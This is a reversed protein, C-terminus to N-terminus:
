CFKRCFCYGTPPFPAFLDFRNNWRRPYVFSRYFKEWNWYRRLKGSPITSFPIEAQEVMKREPGSKSGLFLFESNKKLRRIEQALALLPITPGGSGGGTFLVRVTKDSM